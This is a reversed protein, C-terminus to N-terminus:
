VLAYVFNDTHATDAQSSEGYSAGCVQDADTSMLADVVGAIVLGLKARPGYAQSEAMGFPKAELWVTLWATLWVTLWVSAVVAL